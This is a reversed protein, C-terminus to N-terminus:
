EGVYKEPLPQWAIPIMGTVTSNRATVCFWTTGRRHYGVYMRGDRKTQLLVLEEENPLKNKCPIWNNESM